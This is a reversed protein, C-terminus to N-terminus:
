YKTFTYFSDKGDCYQEVQLRDEVLKILLYNSEPADVELTQEPIHPPFAIVNEWKCQTQNPLSRQVLSVNIRTGDTFINLKVIDSTSRDVPEWINFFNQYFQTYKNSIAHITQPKSDNKIGRDNEVTLIVPFDGPDTYIHTPSLKASSSGDGFDWSRMKTSNTSMDTFEVSFPVVGIPPEPSTKFLPIADVSPNTVIIQVSFPQKSEGAANRSTLGVTYEGPNVFVHDTIPENTLVPPENGFKWTRNDAKPTSLDTFTVPLPAPGCYKNATFYAVPTTPPILNATIMGAIVLIVIVTLISILGWFMTKQMDKKTADDKASYIAYVTYAFFGVAVVCVLGTWTTIKTPDLNNLPGLLCVGSTNVDVM